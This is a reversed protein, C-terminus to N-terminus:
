SVQEVNTERHQIHSTIWAIGGAVVLYCLLILIQMQLQSWDGLSIVDQLGRLSHSMPLFQGIKSLVAINLEGPFTGGSTALQLVLLTVALFKGVLGFVTVLMLIFTMFTFSIVISSLVFLPVSAVELKMVGLVVVDVLLAQILGILYVLGLKNIFHVTGSVKMNQRRGLPLINSAMIGGVYFALSLFYPAIGSGYNPVDSVTSKVLQVPESFMTNRADDNRVDAIKEAGEGLKTSLEKAGDDLKVLGNTLKSAGNNLETGGSALQNVGEQLSTFGNGWKMFGDALNSAGDAIKKTGATAENLKFGFTNMGEEIKHQGDTLKKAGQTLQQQSNNLTSTAKALGNSTAVIKQFAPDQQVEPHNKVYEELQQKVSNAANDAKAQGEALKENGNVWENTGASLESIGSQLTKEGQALLEMGSHLSTAGQSLENAGGTLASQSSALKETGEKLKSTGDSLRDIGNALQSAGNKADTTGEHLKEAGNSADSLGQALDQFKSFVGETYSKTISNSIKTKMNEVATTGIQAAVFNKGPNVKYQLKAPEPKEDMLTSVKKSFDEPITVVMYYKDEKLGEDANKESVFHFALEKNEKLNKVFDDGAHITKEDMAAGKDLNVIAVPLKDLKGYPDWYGALFFGSYILPVILLFILAIRGHKHHWMAKWDKFILKIGKM